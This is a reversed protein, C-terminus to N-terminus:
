SFQPHPHPHSFNHPHEASASASIRYMELKTLDSLRHWKNSSAQSYTNPAEARKNSRCSHNESSNSPTYLHEQLRLLNVSLNRIGEKLKIERSVRLSCLVDSPTCFHRIVNLIKTNQHEVVGNSRPHYTVVNSKNVHFAACLKSLFENNFEKRNNSIVMKPATFPSRANDVLVQAVSQASKDHLPALISFRSFHGM